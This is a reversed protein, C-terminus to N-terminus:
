NDVFIDDMDFIGAQQEIAERSAIVSLEGRREATADAAVNL